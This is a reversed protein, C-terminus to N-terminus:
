PPRISGCSTGSFFRISPVCLRQALKSFAINMLCRCRWAVSTSHRDPFTEEDALVFWGGKTAHRLLQPQVNVLGQRTVGLRRNARQSRRTQSLPFRALWGCRAIFRFLLMIPELTGFVMKFCNLRRSHVHASLQIQNLCCGQARPASKTKATKQRARVFSVGLAGAFCVVMGYGTM